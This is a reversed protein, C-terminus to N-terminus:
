QRSGRGAEALPPGAFPEQGLGRGRRLGARDAADGRRPRSPWPRWCRAVRPSTSRSVSAACIAGASNSSQVTRGPRPRGSCGTSVWRHTAAVGHGYLYARALHFMAGAEGTAAAAELLGRGRAADAPLDLGRLLRRGLETQAQSDCAAALEALVAEGRAADRAVIRGALLAQAYAIQLAPPGDAESTRAILEAATPEDAPQFRGTLYGRSLNIAAQHGGAALAEYLLHQAAPLDGAAQARDALKTLAKADGARAAEALWTSAREPDAPVLEGTDYLWALTRAHSASGARAGLTLARLAADIRAQRTAPDATPDSATLRALELASYADSPARQEYAVILEARYVDPAQEM